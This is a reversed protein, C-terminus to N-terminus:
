QKGDNKSKKESKKGMMEMNKMAANMFMKGIPNSAPNMTKFIEEADFKGSKVKESMKEMINKNFSNLDPLGFAERLEEPTIDITINIKM